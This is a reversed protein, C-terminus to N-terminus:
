NDRFTAETWTRFRPAISELRELVQNAPLKPGGTPFATRLSRAFSLGRAEFVERIRPQFASQYWVYDPVGVDLYLQELESLTRHTPIYHALKVESMLDWVRALEPREYRMYAYALFSALFEDVWHSHPEIGAEYAFTHGLEHFAILLIMQDVAQSWTLGLDALRQKAAASLDKELALYDSAVAGKATAPIFATHPPGIVNPLGYPLGLQLREWDGEGVVAIRMKLTVQLSDQFFQAAGSTLRAVDEALSRYGPSFHIRYRRSVAPLHLSDLRQSLEVAQPLDPPTETAARASTDATSQQPVVSSPPAEKRGCAAGCVVTAVTIRRFWLRSM